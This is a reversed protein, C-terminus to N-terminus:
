RGYCKVEKFKEQFSKIQIINGRCEDPVNGYFIVTEPSLRRLMEAYGNLFFEKARKGNQTGVSSVAVTGGVPEGDFCWDFSEATSWGITPIVEIGLSEWYAALWHKRYHNYIQMAVPFDTFLSFDPSLVFDFKKLQPIYKDPSNWVRAFRYDDIFFHCGKGATDRTTNAFNFGILETVNKRDSGRIKPIGYKGAGEFRAYQLNEYVAKSEYM